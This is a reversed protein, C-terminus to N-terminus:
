TSFALGPPGASPRDDPGDTIAAAIGPGLLLQTSGRPGEIEFWGTTGLDLSEQVAELLADHQERDIEFSQGAYHLQIM